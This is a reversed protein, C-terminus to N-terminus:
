LFNGGLKLLRNVEVKRTVFIDLGSECLYLFQNEGEM